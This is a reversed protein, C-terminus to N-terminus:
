ADGHVALLVRLQSDGKVLVNAPAIMMEGEGKSIFSIRQQWLLMLVIDEHFDLNGGGHRQPQARQEVLRADERSRKGFVAIAILVVDERLPFFIKNKSAFDISSIRK